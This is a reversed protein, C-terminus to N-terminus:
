YHLPQHQYMIENIVLETRFLVSNSAGPTANFNTETFVVFGGAGDGDRVLGQGFALAGDGHQAGTRGINRHGLFSNNGGLDHAVLDLGDVVDAHGADVAQEAFAFAQLLGLHQDDRGAHLARQRARHASAALRARGHGVREHEFLERAAVRAERERGFFLKGQAETFTRPGVYPNGPIEIPTNM